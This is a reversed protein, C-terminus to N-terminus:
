PRMSSITDTRPRDFFCLAVGAALIGAAWLAEVSRNKWAYDASSYLMFLTGACFVLPTLPYLPVRFPRRADPERWRLVLLSFGVLMLFFWFIPLAFNVMRTFGDGAYGQDTTLGGFGGVVALTILGQVLLSRVPAGFRGSWHGLPAFLSHERGLAYYVRAGTLVMGNIASLASICVLLSVAGAGWNGLRLQVVDAAVAQATRTGEFGLARIFAANVLLYISTVALTGLVLAKKLNRDPDRVEASVFALDNWGGYAYMILIM